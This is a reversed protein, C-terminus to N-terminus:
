QNFGFYDDIYQELGYDVGFYQPKKGEEILFVGYYQEYGEEFGYEPKMYQTLDFYYEPYDEDGLAVCGTTDSYVDKFFIRIHRERNRDEVITRIGQLFGVGYTQLEIDNLAESTSYFAEKKPYYAIVIRMPKELPSAAEDRVGGAYVWGVRGDLLAVKLWNTNWERCRITVKTMIDSSEGLYYVKGGLPIVDIKEAEMGPAKRFTLQDIWVNLVPYKSLESVPISGGAGKQCGILTLIIFLTAPINKNM